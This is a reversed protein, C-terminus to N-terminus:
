KPKASVSEIYYHHLNRPLSLTNTVTLQKTNILSSEGQLCVLIYREVKDNIMSSKDNIMSIIKIM